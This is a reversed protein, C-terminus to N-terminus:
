FPGPRRLKRFVEFPEINIGRNGQAFLLAPNDQQVEATVTGNVALMDNCIQGIQFIFVPLVQEHDANVSRPKGALEGVGMYLLRYVAIMYAVRYDIVGAQLDGPVVSNM